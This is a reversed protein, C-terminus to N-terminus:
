QKIPFIQGAASRANSDSSTNGQSEWQVSASSVGDMKTEYCWGRKKLVSKDDRFTRSAWADFSLRNDTPHETDGGPALPFPSKPTGRSYSNASAGVPLHPVTSLKVDM